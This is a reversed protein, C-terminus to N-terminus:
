VCCGLSNLFAGVADEIQLLDPILFIRYEKFMWEATKYDYNNELWIKVTDDDFLAESELLLAQIDIWKILSKEIVTPPTMGLLEYIAVDITKQLEVLQPLKNKLGTGIDGTYAEHADHLLILRARRDDYLEGYFHCYKEYLKCCLLSHLLVSFHTNLSGTWRCLHNLNHAIDVIDIDNSSVNDYDFIKGSNMHMINM